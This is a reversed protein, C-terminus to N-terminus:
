SVILHHQQVKLASVPLHSVFVYVHVIKKVKEFLISNKKLWNDDCYGKRSQVFSTPM